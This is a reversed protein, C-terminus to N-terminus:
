AGEVANRIKEELIRFFWQEVRKPGEVSFVINIFGIEIEKFHGMSNKDGRAFCCILGLNVSFSVIKLIEFTWFNLERNNIELNIQNGNELPRMESELLKKSFWNM